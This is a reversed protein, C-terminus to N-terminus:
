SLRASGNVVAGRWRRASRAEKGHEAAVKADLEAVPIGAELGARIMEAASAPVTTLKVAATPKPEPEPAPTPEPATRAAAVMEDLEAELGAWDQGIEAMPGATAVPEPKAEAAVQGASPAAVHGTAADKAVRKAQVVRQLALTALAMAADPVIPGLRKGIEDYSWSDLVHVGHWYSIWAAVGAVFVLVAAKIATDAKAKRWPTHILLEISVLLFLPWLIGSAYAGGGAAPDLSIAKLNFWLSVAIGGVLVTSAMFVPRRYTKPTENESM